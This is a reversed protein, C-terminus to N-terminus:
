GLISYAFVRRSRISPSMCIHASWSIGDREREREVCVCVCVQEQYIAVHLHNSELDAMSISRQLTVPTRASSSPETLLHLHRTLHRSLQNPRSHVTHTLIQVKTGTFCIFQILTPTPAAHSAAVDPQTQHRTSDSNTIKYWYLLNISYRHSALGFPLPM